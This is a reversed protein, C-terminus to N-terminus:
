NLFYGNLIKQSNNITLTYSRSVKSKFKYYSDIDIEKDHSLIIVQEGANPFFNTLIKERHKSDLKALPSDMIIPLRKNSIKSLGWLVSLIFIEKEGESINEKDLINGEYDILSINFDNKNIKIEKALEDKNSLSKFMHTIMKELQDTKKQVIKESFEKIVNRTNLVLQIKIKDKEDCLVKEELNKIDVEILCISDNIKKKEDMFCSNENSLLEIKTKLNSINKIFGDVFNESPVKKLKENTKKIELLCNDRKNLIKKLKNYLDPEEKKLFINVTEAEGNTLDHILNNNSDSQLNSFMELFINDIDSNIEEIVWLNNKKVDIRDKLKQQLMSKTKILINRSALLEKIKKEEDLQVLLSKCLKPIMLFPLIESCINILEEEIDNLEKKFKYILEQNKNKEIAFNGAYRRLDDEIQRSNLEDENITNNNKFIKNNINKFKEQLKFIEKENVQIEKRIDISKINRQRIKKLLNELDNDLGRFLNLGILDQIANSLIIESNEGTSLQKVKEGDFFFYEAVFPPILSLIYDEWNEKPIIELLSNDKYILLEEEAKGNNIKWKRIIEITFSPNYENVIIEIKIYFIPDCIKNSANNKASILFKQYSNKSVYGNIFRKGFLSLRIAELITTKGSGNAGGILLINTDSNKDTELKLLNEGFFNKYNYLTLSKIIM